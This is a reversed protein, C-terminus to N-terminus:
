VFSLSACLLPWSSIAVLMDHLKNITEEQKQDIPSWKLNTMMTLHTEEVKPTLLKLHDGQGVILPPLKCKVDTTVIELQSARM